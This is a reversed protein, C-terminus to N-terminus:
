WEDVKRRRELEIEDLQVLGEQLACIAVQTRNCLRLKGLIHTLHNRVTCYTIGMRAAIEENGLGHAVWILVERERPTLRGM